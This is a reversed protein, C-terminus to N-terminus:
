PDRRDPLRRLARQLREALARRADPSMAELQDLVAAHGRAQLAEASLRSRQLAEAAAARDFPDRTLATQLDRLARGIARRDRQLADRDIRAVVADRDERPLALAFPGLGLTRLTPDRDGDPAGRGLLAGALLGVILLNVALSLALAIRIGRGTKSKKAADQESM